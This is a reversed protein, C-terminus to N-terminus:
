QLKLLNSTRVRYTSLVLLTLRVLVLVRNRISQLRISYYAVQVMLELAVRRMGTSSWRVTSEAYLKITPNM